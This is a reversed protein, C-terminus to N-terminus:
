GVTIKLYSKCAEELTSPDLYIKKLTSYNDNTIRKKRGGTSYTAKSLETWRSCDIVLLRQLSDQFEFLASHTLPLPVANSLWFRSLPNAVLYLRPYFIPLGTQSCYIAGYHEDDKLLDYAINTLDSRGSLAAFMMPSFGTHGIFRWYLLTAIFPDLLDESNNEATPSIQIM